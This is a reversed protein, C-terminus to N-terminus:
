WKSKMVASALAFQRAPLAHHQKLRKQIRTEVIWYMERDGVTEAIVYSEVISCTLDILYRYLVFEMEADVTADKVM